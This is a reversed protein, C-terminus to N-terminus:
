SLPPPQRGASQRTASVAEEILAELEDPPLDDFKARVEEITQDFARWKRTPITM